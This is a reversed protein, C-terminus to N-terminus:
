IRTSWTWPGRVDGVDGHRLAEQVQDTGDHYQCRPGASTSAQIADGRVMSVLKQTTETTHLFGQRLSRSMSRLYEVGVLSDREGTLGKGLRQLLLPHWTLM